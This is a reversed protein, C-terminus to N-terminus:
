DPFTAALLTGVLSFAQCHKHPGNWSTTWLYYEGEAYGLKKSLEIMSINELSPNRKFESGDSNPMYLHWAMANAAILVILLISCLYKKKHFSEV